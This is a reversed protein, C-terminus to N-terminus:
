YVIEVFGYVYERPPENIDGPIQIRGINKVITPCSKNEKMKIIIGRISVNIPEVHANSMWDPYSEYWGSRLEIDAISNLKETTWTLGDDSYTPPECEFREICALETRHAIHVYCTSDYISVISPAGTINFGNEDDYLIGGRDYYGNYYVDLLETNDVKSTVIVRMQGDAGILDDDDNYYSINIPGHIESHINVNACEAEMIIGEDFNTADFTYSERWVNEYTNLPFDLVRAYTSIDADETTNCYDGSRFPM